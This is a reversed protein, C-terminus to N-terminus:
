QKNQVEYLKEGSRLQNEANGKEAGERTDVNLRYKLSLHEQMAIGISNNENL